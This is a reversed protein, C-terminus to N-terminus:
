KCRFITNIPYLTLHSKIINKDFIPDPANLCYTWLLVYFDFEIIMAKSKLPSM